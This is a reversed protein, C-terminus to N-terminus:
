LLLPGVVRFACDCVKFRCERFDEGLEFMEGCLCVGGLQDAREQLLEVDDGAERGPGIGLVRVSENM